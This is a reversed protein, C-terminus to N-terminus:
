FHLTGSAAAPLPNVEPAADYPRYCAFTRPLRILRETHLHETSGVPDTHVDAIRYDMCHLGTTNPYGLYTMQVPAPRMAFIGLRSGGTHGALDILIEIRDGRILKATDLDNMTSIDRWRVDYSQLRATMEDTRTVSSYCFVEFRSRDHNALLPEIFYAVSHSRFDPSVYGIRLKRDAPIELLSRPPIQVGREFLPAIRAHERFIEEPSFRDGYHMALPRASLAWSLKPAAPNRRMEQAYAGAADDSNKEQALVTAITVLEELHAPNLAISERLWAIACQSDTGLAENFAADAGAPDGRRERCLGLVIRAAVSSSGPQVLTRALAEASDIDGNELLANALGIRAQADDSRLTLAERYFAIAGSIEGVFHLEKARGKLCQALNFRADSWDPKAALARRCLVIAEEFRAQRGLLSALNNLAEAYTPRLALARQYAQMARPIDGIETLVAAYNFHFEPPAGPTNISKELLTLSTERRGTQHAVLGLLHLAAPQDPSLELAKRYASEAEAFEGRQHHQQGLALLQQLDPQAM